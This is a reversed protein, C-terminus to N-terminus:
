AGVALLIRVHDAYFGVSASFGYCLLQARDVFTGITGGSAEVLALRADDGTIALGSLARSLRGDRTVVLLAAPHAFRVLAADYAYYFGVACTLKAIISQSATFGTTAKGVQTAFGIQGGIMRKGNAATAKNFGIVVLRYDTAAKLGSNKLAVGALAVIPSCHQPCDM